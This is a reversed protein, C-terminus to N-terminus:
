TRVAAQHADLLRQRRTRYAVIPNDGVILNEGMKLATRKPMQTQVVRRDQHAVIFNFPLSLWDVVDRLVPVR